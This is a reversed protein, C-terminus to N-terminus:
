GVLRQIAIFQSVKNDLDRVPRFDCEHIFLTGDKRYNTIRIMGAEGDTILQRFKAVAEPETKPGQLTSLSKGIIEQVTYGTHAEFADSAFIVPNGPAASCVVSSQLKAEDLRDRSVAKELYDNIKETRTM